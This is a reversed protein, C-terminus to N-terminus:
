GFRRRKKPTKKLPAEPEDTRGLEGLRINDELRPVDRKLKGHNECRTCRLAATAQTGCLPDGCMGYFGCRCEVLDIMDNCHSCWLYNARAYKTAFDWAFDPHEKLATQFDDHRVLEHQFQQARYVVWKRLGFDYEPTTAYVVDIASVLDAISFNKSRLEFIFNAASTAQLAPVEFRGAMAYVQAHVEFDYDQSLIADDFTIQSSANGLIRSLCPAFNIVDYEGTYLYQMLRAIILPQQDGLNVM